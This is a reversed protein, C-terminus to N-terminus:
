RVQSHQARAMVGLDLLLVTTATLTTLELNPSAILVSPREIRTTASVRMAEPHNEFFGGFLTSTFFQGWSAPIM